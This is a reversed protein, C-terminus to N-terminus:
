VTVFYLWQFLSGIIKGFMIAMLLWLLFGDVRVRKLLIPIVNLIETLAAALLGNFIGHLLGLFVLLIVPEQWSGDFFTLFTGFLLGSIISATYIKLFSATKSLQILRPIIKLVTIFAVFGAGVTIGSGFGIFAQIINLSVETM